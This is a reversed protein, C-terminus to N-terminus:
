KTKVKEARAKLGEVINEMRMGRSGKILIWDGPQIWDTLDDLIEEKTGRVIERGEMNGNRAGAEVFDAFAGTVYIRTINSKAALAGIERHMSEAHKGLELMDGAVFVGRHAGKLSKLTTLAASMSGPNANYTDDIINVGNVTKFINMRGRDIKFNELGDKIERASLGLLHGVAAAALANSVMFRAPANLDIGIHGSPLMLTFSIGPGKEKVDRARIEAIESLGYLLVPLSTERALKLLRADDANLVATGDPSMKELLEAKERLVGEISGLGELHAPGINTIVGIAPLCIEALRRIEGPRNTGLELVAREHTNDLKLLTLPLGIENNFNGSTALTSFRRAIVLATMKRTTTKGNSGTIAVVTVNSRKRRFAALDGLAKITNEVTVCVVGKSKFKEKPLSQTKGRDLVLGRIGSAVVSGVFSHGDHVDGKIAVFLDERSITRSDISIGSFVRQADGCMLDGDTAELIDVTTWQAKDANRM